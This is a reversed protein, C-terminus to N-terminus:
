QTLGNIRAIDGSFYLSLEALRLPVRCSYWVHFINHKRGIFIYAWKFDPRNWLNRRVPISQPKIVAQEPPLSSVRCTNRMGILLSGGVRSQVRAVSLTEKSMKVFIISPSVWYSTFIFGTGAIARCQSIESLPLLM